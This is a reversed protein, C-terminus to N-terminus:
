QKKAALKAFHKHKKGRIHANWTQENELVMDCLECHRMRNGVHEAASLQM